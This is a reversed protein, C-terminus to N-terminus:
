FIIIILLFCFLFFPWVKLEWTSTLNITLFLLIWFCIVKYPADFASIDFLTGFFWSYEFNELYKIRFNEISFNVPRGISLLRLKWNLWDMSLSKPRILRHSNDGIWLNGIWHFVVGRCIADETCKTGCIRTTWLPTKKCCFPM